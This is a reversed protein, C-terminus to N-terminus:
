EVAGKPSIRRTSIHNHFFRLGKRARHLGKHTHRTFAPFVRPGSRAAGTPCNRQRNRRQRHPFSSHRRQFRPRSGQGGIRQRVVDALGMGAAVGAAHRGAHRARGSRLRHSRLRRAAPVPKGSRYGGTTRSTIHGPSGGYWPQALDLPGASHRPPRRFAGGGAPPRLPGTSDRYRCPGAPRRCTGRGVAARCGQRGCPGAAM